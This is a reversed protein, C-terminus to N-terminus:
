SSPSAPLVKLAARWLRYTFRAAAAAARRRGRLLAPTGAVSPTLGWGIEARTGEQLLKEGIRATSSARRLVGLRWQLARSLDFPAAGGSVGEPLRTGALWAAAGLWAVTMSRDAIEASDLRARIEHWDIEADSALIVAADQFFRLRFAAAQHQVAHTIGHWLLETPSPVPLTIGHQRLERTGSSARRWAEDSSVARSTSTHLEVAVREGDCLPPLHYHGPPTHEPRTSYDYGLTRLQEWISRAEAAPVLVDVDNTTRADAYPFLQTAARRAAGKLLVHPIGRDGLFRLISETKADVRMNQAADARARRELWTAFVGAQEVGCKKLRRYLWLACGEFSVLRALGSTSATAWAARLLAPEPGRGLRLTELVLTAPHV